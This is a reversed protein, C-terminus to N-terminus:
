IPVARFYLFVDSTKRHNQGCVGRYVELWGFYVVGKELWGRSWNGGRELWGDGTVTPHRQALVGIGGLQFPAVACAM